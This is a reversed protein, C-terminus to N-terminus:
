ERVNFFLKNINNPIGKLNAITATPPDISLNPFEYLDFNFSDYVDYDLTASGNILTNVVCQGLSIVEVIVHAGQYNGSTTIYIIKGVALTPNVFGVDNTIDFITLGYPTSGLISIFSDAPDISSIDLEYIIDDSVSNITPPASSIAIPM